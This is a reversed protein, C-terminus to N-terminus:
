VSCDSDPLGYLNTIVADKLHIELNESVTLSILYRFTIANMVPSYTEKYDIEPRQSLEQAALRAKYRV